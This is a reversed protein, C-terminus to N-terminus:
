SPINNMQSVKKAHQRGFDVGYVMSQIGGRSESSSEQSERNCIKKKRKLLKCKSCWKICVVFTHILIVILLLAGLVIAIVIQAKSAEQTSKRSTSLVSTM